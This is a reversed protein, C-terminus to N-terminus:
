LTLGQRLCVFLALSVGGVLPWDVESHKVCHVQLPNGHPQATSYNSGSAKVHTQCTCSWQAASGPRKSDAPKAATYVAM